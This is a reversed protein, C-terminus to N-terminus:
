SVEFCSTLITHIRKKTNIQTHVPIYINEAEENFLYKTCSTDMFLVIGSCYKM